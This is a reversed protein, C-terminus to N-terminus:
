LQEWANLQSKNNYFQIFMFTEEDLTVCTCEPSIMLKSVQRDQANNHLQHRLQHTLSNTQQQKLWSGSPM